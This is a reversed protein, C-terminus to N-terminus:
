KVHRWTTYNLVKEMAGTSVGYKKALGEISFQEDIWKRFLRAQERIQRVERVKQETLKSHPLREGRAAFEHQRILFEDRTM